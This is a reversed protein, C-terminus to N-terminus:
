LRDASHDAFGGALLEARDHNRDEDVLGFVGVVDERLRGELWDPLYVLGQSCMVAAQGVFEVM